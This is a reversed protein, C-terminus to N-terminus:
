LSTFEVTIMEWVDLRSLSLVVYDEEQNWTLNQEEIVSRVNIASSDKPLKLKFAINYVPIEERLPREGTENVLHIMYKGDAKFMTVLVTSPAQMQLEREGLAMDVLNGILKYHDALRFEKLLKGLQFPLYLVLGYNECTQKKILLPLDTYPVPISAREPPAGTVEVPAFPPVLTALVKSEATPKCYLVTGRFAVKDTEMETNLAKESEEFRLYSAKLYESTSVDKYIGLFESALPVANGDTSEIIVNGGKKVYNELATQIGPRGLLGEPVIALKYQKLLEPQVAYDHMLDFTVHNKILGDAWSISGESGDWLLIAEAKSKAGAMDPESKMIMHNVRFITKLVRKDTITDPYGTVSHWIIGGSAPVQCLWPLYEAAPLGVHRWDMGPCSHIIGFPRKEEDYRRGAKMALTTNVTEPIGGHVGRSLVDQSETCILDATAYREYISDREIRGMELFNWSYPIYYLIMPVDSKTEKIAHYIVGINDRTCRSLWEPDFDKEDEPMPVGYLKQYKEQCKECFCPSASPANFFIGDINYNQLVEIIVPVAVEENRYGNNACTNLFLSWNGMRKEGRYYPQKDRKRAFWQPKQLYTTDDTISFDFRAIFKINRKHFEEILEALLDRDNPLFENIHHYKVKSPYWAYIGGVNMVVINCALAETESAIKEPVMGPTDTVQLNYQMVRMPGNWWMQKEM